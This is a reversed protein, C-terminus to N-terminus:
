QFDVYNRFWSASGAITPLYGARAQPLREATAAAQARASQWVPDTERAQRDLTLLDAGSAPLALALALAAALRTVNM